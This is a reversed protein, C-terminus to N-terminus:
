EAQELAMPTYRCLILAGTLWVTPTHVSTSKMISLLFTAPMLREVGVVPAWTNKQSNVPHNISSLLHYHMCRPCSCVLWNSDHWNLSQMCCVGRLTIISLPFWVGQSTRFTTAQPAFQLLDLSPPTSDPWFDLFQDAYPNYLDKNASAPSPPTTKGVLGLIDTPNPPPLNSFNHTIVLSPWKHCYPPRLYHMDSSVDMIVFPFESPDQLSGACDLQCWSVM